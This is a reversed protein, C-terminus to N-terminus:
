KSQAFKSYLAAYSQAMKKLTFLELYRLRANKGMLNAKEPNDWLYQMAKRIALPDEPPVVLGTQEHLNVFSSGTGTNASILPKSFIAGELLSLGFAESRLHSPFVIAYALSLLAKKHVDDQFGLFYVNTLRHRDAMEKLRREEPGTGVIVVPFISDKLAELLYTLGKYYRLVGIFLFFRPPLRVQWYKVLEPLVDEASDEMGIPIIEVKNRFRRLVLSTELYHPSSAVIISARSLFFQMLPAYLWSFFRQRVIDSHYTVIKPCKPNFILQMLDMFPWPFHYHIVDYQKILQKFRLLANLSFPCSAIELNAKEFFIPYGHYIMMQNQNKLATSLVCPTFGLCLSFTALQDIVQEVGGISHPRASKYVHLIKM